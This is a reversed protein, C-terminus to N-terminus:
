DALARTGRRSIRLEAIAIGALILGAGALREPALRDGALLYGFLGAFIPECILILAVTEPALRTQARTQIAYAVATGFVALTVITALTSASEPLALEGSGLSWILSLAAVVAMQLFASGSAAAPRTFTSVVVIHVAFGVACGLVLLDGYHLALGDLSLLGLGLVAIATGSFQKASPRGRGLLFLILPTFVTCLGTIFGANSPTTYATGSTQLAFAAFLVVGAFGAGLWDRTNLTRLSGLSFPLLVLAALGFMWSNLASAPMSALTDHKAVFSWGWVATVALMALAWATRQSMAAGM